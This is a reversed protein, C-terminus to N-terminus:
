GEAPAPNGSPNWGVAGSAASRCSRFLSLSPPGAAEEEAELQTAGARWLRQPLRAVDEALM